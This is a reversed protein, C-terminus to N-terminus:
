VGLVDSALESPPVLEGDPAVPEKSRNLTEGFKDEVDWLGSGELIM